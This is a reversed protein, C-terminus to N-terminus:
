CHAPLGFLECAVKREMKELEIKVNNIEDPPLIDNIQASSAWRVLDSATHLRAQALALSLQRDKERSRM